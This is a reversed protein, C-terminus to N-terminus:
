FFRTFLVIVIPATIAAFCMLYFTNPTIEDNIFQYYCYPLLLVSCITQIFKM